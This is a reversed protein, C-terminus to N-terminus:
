SKETDTDISYRRRMVPKGQGLAKDVTDGVGASENVQFAALADSANMVETNREFYTTKDVVTNDPNEILAEPNADRVRTLQDILTEAQESTIVGEEARKRYHAAYRDLTVPLYIRIGEASPDLRLAEETAISDVNLAGGSVIGGGQEIIKRVAEQVASKVEESTTRWSGSIGFWYREGEQLPKKAELGRFIDEITVLSLPDTREEEVSM